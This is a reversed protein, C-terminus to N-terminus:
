QLFLSEFDFPTYRAHRRCPNGSPTISRALRHNCQARIHITDGLGRLLRAHRIVVRNHFPCGPMTFAVIGPLCQVDDRRECEFLDHLALFDRTREHQPGTNGFFQHACFREVNPGPVKFIHVRTDEGVHCIVKANAIAIGTVITQYGHSEIEFTGSRM